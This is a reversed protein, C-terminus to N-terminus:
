SGSNFIKVRWGEWEMLNLEVGRLERISVGVLIIVQIGKFLAGDEKTFNVRLRNYSSRPIM